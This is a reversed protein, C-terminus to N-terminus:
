WTEKGLPKGTDVADHCNNPTIKSLLEDLKYTKKVPSIIICGESQNVEVESDITIHASALIAAPLRVAASNGWKKVATKM